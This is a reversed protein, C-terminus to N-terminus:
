IRARSGPPPAGAVAASAQRLRGRLQRLDERLQGGRLGRGEAGHAWSRRPETAQLIGGGATGARCRDLPAKGERAPSAAEASQLLRAAGARGHGVPQGRRSDDDGPAASAGSELSSRRVHLIARAILGPPRRDAAAALSLADARSVPRRACRRSASLARVFGRGDAEQQWFADRVRLATASRDAGGPPQARGHPLGAPQRQLPIRLWGRLSEAPGRGPLRVRAIEPRATAARHRTPRPTLCSYRV